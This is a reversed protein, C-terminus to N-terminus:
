PLRKWAGVASEILTDTKVMPFLDGRRDSREKLVPKELRTSGSARQLSCKGVRLQKERLGTPNGPCRCSHGDSPLFYTGAKTVQGHSQLKPIHEEALLM